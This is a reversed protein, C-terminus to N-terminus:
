RKTAIGWLAGIDLCVFQVQPRPARALRESPDPPANAMLAPWAARDKANPQLSLPTQRGPMPRREMPAGRSPVAPTSHPAGHCLSAGPPRTDHACRLAIERTAKPDCRPAPRRVERRYWLQRPRTRAAAPPPHVLDSVLPCTNIICMCAGAGPFDRDGCPFCVYACGPVCGCCKSSWCGSLEAAGVGRGSGVM